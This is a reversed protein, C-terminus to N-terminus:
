GAFYTAVFDEPYFTNFLKQRAAAERVFQRNGSIMCDAEGKLATLFIGVDERPIIKQAALIQKEEMSVWVYDVTFDRWLLDLVFGAWDKGGVRRAVRRIQEILENSVILTINEGRLGALIQGSPSNPQLYGLIVINTDLLVRQPLM